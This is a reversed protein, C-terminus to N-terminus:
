GATSCLKAIFRQIGRELKFTEFSKLVDTIPDNNLKILARREPLKRKSSELKMKNCSSGVIECGDRLTSPAWSNLADTILFM